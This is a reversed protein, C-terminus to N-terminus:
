AKLPLLDINKLLVQIIKSKIHAECRNYYSEVRDALNKPPFEVIFRFYFAPKEARRGKM